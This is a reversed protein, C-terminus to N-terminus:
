TDSSELEIEEHAIRIKEKYAQEKQEPSLATKDMVVIRNGVKNCCYGFHNLMKEFSSFGMRELDFRQSIMARIEKYPACYKYHSILGSLTNGLNEESTDKEDITYFKSCSVRFVRPTLYYGM